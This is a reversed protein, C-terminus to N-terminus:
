ERRGARRSMYETPSLGVTRRFVTSFYLPDTFGSLFAVNKVSDLGQDFLSVAYRVRLNRLYETYGEGMKEKFVHSAYKVNYGLEKATSALTLEPDAFREEALMTMKNLLDHQAAPINVLRSFAYLLMSESALDISAESARSLSDRWLTIMGDFGDFRRRDRHIGFRHLMSEARAGGFSIYMYECPSEDRVAFMEDRFGFVLDGPSFPTEVGDFRFAGKGQIPLIARHRPLRHAERMAEQNTEYIFCQIELSEASADPLFKCINKV